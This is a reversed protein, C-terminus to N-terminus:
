GSRRTAFRSCVYVALVGCVLIVIWGMFILDSLYPYYPDGRELWMLVTAMALCPALAFSPTRWSIQHRKNREWAFVTVFVFTGVALAGIMGVAFPSVKSARGYHVDFYIGVIGGAVSAVLAFVGAMFVTFVFASAARIRAGIGSCM